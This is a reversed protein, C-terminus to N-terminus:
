TVTKRSKDLKEISNRRKRKLKKKEEVWTADCKERKRQQQKAM